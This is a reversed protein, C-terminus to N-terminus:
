RLFWFELCQLDVTVLDPHAIPRFECDSMLIQKKKEREVTFRAETALGSEATGRVIDKLPKCCIVDM